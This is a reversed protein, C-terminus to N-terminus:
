LCDQLSNYIFFVLNSQRKEVQFGRVPTRKVLCDAQSETLNSFTIPSFGSSLFLTRWHQMKEPSRFHGMVIKEIGPQLLFREIKELADMNVNVADLSELLNSYSQLEHIIHNPFPLDPRDCGRDVSVVIKPSLQKVFHLVLPVLLQYSALSGVPLSQPSIHQNHALCPTDLIEKLVQGRPNCSSFVFFFSNSAKGRSLSSLIRESRDRKLHTKIQIRIRIETCIKLSSIFNSDETSLTTLGCPNKLCMLHM